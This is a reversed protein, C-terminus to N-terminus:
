ESRKKTDAGDELPTRPRDEPKPTGGDDWDEENEDWHDLEETVNTQAQAQTQAGGDAQRDVNASVNGTEQNRVNGLEVDNDEGDAPEDGPVIDYHKNKRRRELMRKHYWSSLALALGSGLM